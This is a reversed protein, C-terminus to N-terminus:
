NVLRKPMLITKMMLFKAFLLSSPRLIQTVKQDLIVEFDNQQFYYELYNLIYDFGM